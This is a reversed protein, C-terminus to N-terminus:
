RAQRWTPLMQRRWLARKVANIANGRTLSKTQSSLLNLFLKLAVELVCLPEEGRLELGGQGVRKAQLDRDVNKM